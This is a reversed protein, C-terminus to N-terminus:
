TPPAGEVPRRGLTQALGVVLYAIVVAVMVFKVSAFVFAMAPWPQGVHGGLVMLIGINEVADCAAAAPALWAISRGAAALRSSGREAARASVLVCAASLALAYLVLILFDLYISMRAADVGDPGLWALQAAAGSTTRMFELDPISVGRMDMTGLSPLSLAGAGLVLVFLGLVLRGRRPNSVLTPWMCGIM